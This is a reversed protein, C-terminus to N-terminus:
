QTMFGVVQNPQTDAMIFINARLQFGQVNDYFGKTKVVYVMGFFGQSIRKNTCNCM